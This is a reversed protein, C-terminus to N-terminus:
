PGSSMPKEPMRALLRESLWPPLLGFFGAIMYTQWPFAIRGKNAALGRVIIEAARGADMMFPMKYHNVATMPTRIFGPCIVSVKVGRGALAGRLAEGYMRVAGKSASYAPSGPWGSFSALSSMVAIHGGGRKAMLPIAPDITNLVGMVNVDFIKKAQGEPEGAGGTGGTGGSIGANAVVLDLPKQADSEEIHRKMAARDTVDAVTERVTAGRSRCLAATAALRVPDRGSLFLTVGPAAYAAALAEGIGSSAGTILISSFPGNM